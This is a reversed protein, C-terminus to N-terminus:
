CISELLTHSKSFVLEWDKQLRQSGQPLSQVYLRRFSASSDSLTYFPTEDGHRGTSPIMQSSATRYPQFQRRMSSTGSNFGAIALSLAQSGSKRAKAYNTLEHKCSPLSAKGPPNTVDWEFVGVEHKIEMPGLLGVLHV